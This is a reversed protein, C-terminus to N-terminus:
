ASPCSLHSPLWSCRSSKCLVWTRNRADVHHSGAMQLELGMSDSAGKQGGCAGPVCMTYLNVNLYLM